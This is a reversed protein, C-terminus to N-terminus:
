GPYLLIAAGGPTGTEYFETGTSGVACKQGKATYCSALYPASNAPCCSPEALSANEAKVQEIEELLNSIVRNALSSDM